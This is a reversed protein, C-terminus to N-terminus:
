GFRPRTLFANKRRRPRIQPPPALATSALDPHLDQPPPPSTSSWDYGYFNEEWTWHYRCPTSEEGRPLSGFANDDACRDLRLCRRGDAPPLPLESAVQLHVLEATRARRKRGPEEQKKSKHYLISLFDSWTTSEQSVLCEKVPEQAQEQEQNIHLHLPLDIRSLKEIGTTKPLCKPTTKPKPLTLHSVGSYEM